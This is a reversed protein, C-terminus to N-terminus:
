DKVTDDFKLNNVFEQFRPLQDPCYIGIVLLEGRVVRSDAVIPRMGPGAAGNMLQGLLTAKRLAGSPDDCIAGGDDGLVRIIQDQTPPHAGAKQLAAILQNAKQEAAQSSEASRYSLLSVVLLLGVFVAAIIYVVRERNDTSTEPVTM